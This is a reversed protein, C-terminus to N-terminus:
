QRGRELVSGDGFDLVYAAHNVRDQKKPLKRYDGYTLRLMKDYNHPMKVVLDEFQMDRLPFIDRKHVANGFADMGQYSTVKKTNKYNASTSVQEFWRYLGATPVRLFRFIYHAAFCTVKALIGALGKVKIIPYPSGCLFEVQSIRRALWIKRKATRVRDDMNDYIFLDIHLCLDCDMTRSVYPVFKTGKRQLKVVTSAYGKETLPTSLKYREGLERGVVAAFINYDERMMGVDLDDDWPIFGQHRAAGLATGWVLFYNLEYKECVQIFDYLINLEAKKIKELQEKSYQKSIHKAMIVEARKTKRKGSM